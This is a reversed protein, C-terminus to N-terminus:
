AFVEVVFEPTIHSFALPRRRVGDLDDHFQHAASKKCEVGAVILWINVIIRRNYGHQDAANAKGVPFNPRKPGILSDM